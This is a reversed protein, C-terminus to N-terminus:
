HASGLAKQVHSLLRAKFAERTEGPEPAIFGLPVRKGGPASPEQNKEPEKTDESM